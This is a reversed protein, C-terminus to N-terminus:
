GLSSSRSSTAPGPSLPAPERDTSIEIVPHAPPELWRLLELLKAEPLAVCGETAEGVWSGLFMGLEARKRGRDDPEHQVRDGRLVSLRDDRDTAGGVLGRVPAHVRLARPRLPQVAAFVSGRGVLRRVGAPSLRLAARRPQARERVDDRRHRVRGDPHRSRGRAARDAALLHGSGTEAQWTSFVTRWPSAGGAREYARLSALYGPAPPDSTPSSVVILQEADAPVQLRGASPDASQALAPVTGHVPLLAAALGALAALSALILHRPTSIHQVYMAGAM